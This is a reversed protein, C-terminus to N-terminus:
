RAGEAPDRALPTIEVHIADVLRRRAREVRVAIDELKVAETADICGDAAVEEVTTILSSASVSFKLEEEERTGIPQTDGEAPRAIVDLPAGPPLTDRLIENVLVAVAEAGLGRRAGDRRANCLFGIVEEYRIPRLGARKKRKLSESGRCANLHPRYLSMRRAVRLFNSDHPANATNTNM